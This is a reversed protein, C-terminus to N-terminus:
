KKKLTGKVWYERPAKDGKTWTATGTLTDGELTLKWTMTGEKKSKTETTFVIKSGVKQALYPAADFGYKDCATSHFRGDKFEYADKDGKAKGKEGMEGVFTKSERARPPAEQAFGAHVLGLVLAARIAIRLIRKM